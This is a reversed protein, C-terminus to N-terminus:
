LAHQNLKVPFPPHLISPHHHSYQHPYQIFPHFFSLAVIFQFRPNIFPPTLKTQRINRQILWTLGGLRTRIWFTYPFGPTGFPARWLSPFSILSRALPFTVCLRSYYISSPYLTIRSFPSTPLTRSAFLALPLSHTSSLFDPSLPDPILPNVLPQISLYISISCLYLPLSSHNEDTWSDNVIIRTRCPYSPLLSLILPPRQGNDTTWSSTIRDNENLQFGIGEENGDLSEFEIIRGQNEQNRKWRLIRNSLIIRKNNSHM